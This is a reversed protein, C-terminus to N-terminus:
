SRVASFLGYAIVGGALVTKAVGAARQSFSYEPLMNTKDMDPNLELRRSRIHAVLQEFQSRNEITWRDYWSLGPYKAKGIRNKAKGWVGIWGAVANDSSTLEEWHLNWDYRKKTQGSNTRVEFYDPQQGAGFVLFAREGRYYYHLKRADVYVWDPDFWEAINVEYSALIAGLTHITSM